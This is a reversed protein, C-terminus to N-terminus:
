LGSKPLLVCDQSSPLPVLLFLHRLCPRSYLTQKGRPRAQMFSMFRNIEYVVPIFLLHIASSKAIITEYIICKHFIFPGTWKGRDNSKINQLNESYNPAFAVKDM